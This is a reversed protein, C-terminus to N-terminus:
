KLTERPPKGLDASVSARSQSVVAKRFSPEESEWVKLAAIIEFSNALVFEGLSRLAAAEYPSRVANEVDVAVDIFKQSITRATWEKRPMTKPHKV